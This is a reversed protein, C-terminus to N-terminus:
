YFLTEHVMKMQVKNSGFDITNDTATFCNLAMRLLALLVVLAVLWFIAKKM